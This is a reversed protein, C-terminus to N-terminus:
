CTCAAVLPSFCFRVQLSGAVVYFAGLLLPVWFSSHLGGLELPLSDYNLLHVSGHIGDLAPGLTAGAALHQADATQNDDYSRLLLTPAGSNARTM